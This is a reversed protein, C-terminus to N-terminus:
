HLLLMVLNPILMIAILGAVALALANTPNHHGEFGEIKMAWDRERM